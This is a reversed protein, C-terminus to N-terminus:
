LARRLHDWCASDSALLLTGDCARPQYPGGDIMRGYGGAEAHILVGAAHDWPMLHHCFHAFNLQGRVLDLYDHAASGQRLIRAVQGKLRSGRRISGTLSALPGAPTVALRTGADDWAGQGREAIVMRGAVPDHIWGWRTEGDIVLALIVAFRASGKAFNATGDVPDIVWAPGPRELLRLLGPDAAVGEEGVCPVGPALAALGQILAREAATDAATVLQGPAKEHVQDPSLHGFRPLIEVAAVERLLAAIREPDPMMM